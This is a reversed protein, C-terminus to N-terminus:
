KGEKIYVYIWGSISTKDIRYEILENKEIAMFIGKNIKNKFHEIYFKDLEEKPVSYPSRQKEYAYVSMKDIESMEFGIALKRGEHREIKLDPFMSCKVSSEPSLRKAASRLIKAIQKKM